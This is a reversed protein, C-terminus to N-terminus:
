CSMIPVSVLGIIGCIPGAASTPGLWTSPIEATDEWLYGNQLSFGDNELGLVAKYPASTERLVYRGVSGRVERDQVGIGPKEKAAHVTTWPGSNLLERLGEQDLIACRERPAQIEKYGSYPWQCRHAGGATGGQRSMSHRLMGGCGRRMRSQRRLASKRM